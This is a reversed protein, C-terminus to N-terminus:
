RVRKAKAERRRRDLINAFEHVMANWKGSINARGFHRGLRDYYDLTIHPDGEVYLAKKAPAADSRGDAEALIALRRLLDRRVTPPVSDHAAGGLLAKLAGDTDHFNLSLSAADIGMSPDYEGRLYERLAERSIRWARGVKNGPLRGAKLERQITVTDVKLYAAAEEVTLTEDKDM